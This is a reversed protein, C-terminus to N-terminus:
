CLGDFVRVRVVAVFLRRDLAPRELRRQPLQEHELVVVVGRHGSQRGRELLGEAFDLVVQVLVEVLGEKRALHLLSHPLPRRHGKEDGCDRGVRGGEEGQGGFSAPDLVVGVAGADGAVGAIRGSSM